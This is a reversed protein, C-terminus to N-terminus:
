LRPSDETAPGPFLSEHGRAYGAVGTYAILFRLIRRPALRRDQPLPVGAVMQRGDAGDRRLALQIAMSLIVGDVGLSHDGTQCVQPAFHGAAQDHDPIPGRDVATVDNALKQGMARRLTQMQLAQRGIGRLQVGVLTDPLLEFTHFQAVDTTNVQRM